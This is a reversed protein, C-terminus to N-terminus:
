SFLGGPIIFNLFSFMLAYVVIGVVTNFIVTRGKKFQEPSGASTTFLISGWVIGILAAVAVGATLINIAMELLQWIGTRTIDTPPTYIAEPDTCGGNVPKTNDSCKGLDGEDCSLLSTKVGGCTNSSTTTTSGGGGPDPRASVVPSVFLGGLGMLLALVMVTQKIKM